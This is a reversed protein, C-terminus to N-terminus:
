HAAAAAETQDATVTTDVAATDVKPSSIALLKVAHEIGNFKVNVVDGVKKGTLGSILDPVGSESLKIRSRFIGRDNGAEDVATSTLVVTSTDTVTDVTELGDKEDAKQSAENFDALRQDNAIANLANVDLNLHKQLATYKYQLEYLQNLASGLDESMAKVNTILQQIMMQSIRSAMQSNQLETEVQRLKVKASPQAPTRFGKM